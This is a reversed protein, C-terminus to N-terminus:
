IRGTECLSLDSYIPYSYKESVLGPGTREALVTYCIRYRNNVFHIDVMLKKYQILVQLKSFYLYTNHRKGHGYNSLNVITLSRVEFKM